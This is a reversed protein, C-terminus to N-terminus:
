IKIQEDFNLMKENAECRQFYKGDCKIIAKKM